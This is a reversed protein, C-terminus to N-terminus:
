KKTKKAPKIVEAKEIVVNTTPVDSRFFGGSGTPIKAMEDVVEMGKTVKGFVAYGWGQSTESTFDLFHNDVLNIFFQSSASHPFNTRAMAITGRVNKLGNNAENDISENTEKDEFDATYGGGQAMFGDIVRHFITGNYFGANVYDVFNKVSKPAEKDNLELEIQGLNTTILVKTNKMEEVEETKTKQQSSCAFLVTFALLFVMKRLM